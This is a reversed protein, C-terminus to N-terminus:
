RKSCRIESGAAEPIDVLEAPTAPAAGKRNVLNEKMHVDLKPVSTLGPIVGGPAVPRSGVTTASNLKPATGKTNTKSRV